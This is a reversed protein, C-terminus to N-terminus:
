EEQVCVQSTGFFLDLTGNHKISRLLASPTVCDLEKGAGEEAHQPM